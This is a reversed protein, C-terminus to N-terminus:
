SFSITVTVQIIQGVAVPQSTGLAALTFSSGAAFSTMADTCSAPAVSGACYGVHTWVDTVTAAYAATASGSLVFGASNTVTLNKFLNSGANPNSPETVVCSVPTGSDDCAGPSVGTGQLMVSWIGPSQDRKLVSMLDSAGNFANDFEYSSVLTGDSQLIEIKWHGHVQIGEGTQAAVPSIGVLSVLLAVAVAIIRRM